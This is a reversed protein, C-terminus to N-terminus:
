ERVRLDIVKQNWVFFDLFYATERFRREIVVDTIGLEKIKQEILIERPNANQYTEAPSTM